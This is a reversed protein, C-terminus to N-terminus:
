PMGPLLYGVLRDAPRSLAVLHGGAGPVPVFTAAM